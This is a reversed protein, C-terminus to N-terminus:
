SRLEPLGIHLVESVSVFGAREYIGRAQEHLPTLWLLACDSAFAESCLRSTVAAALGRGRFEPMVGVTALEAVGNRVVECIGSAAPASSAAHRALVVLGGQDVFSRRGALERATPEGGGGYAHRIVTLEGRLDADSRAPSLDFGDPPAMPQLTDAACVMLPLRNEVVFGAALLVAEVEPAAGVVYELRPQRRRSQYHDVLASVEAETPRADASPVAYNLYRNDSAPEVIAFFCGIRTASRAAAASLYYTHIKSDV